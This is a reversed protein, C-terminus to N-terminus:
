EIPKQTKVNKGNNGRAFECLMFNAVGHAM